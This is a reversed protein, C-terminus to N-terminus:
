LSVSKSKDTWWLVLKDQLSDHQLDEVEEAM